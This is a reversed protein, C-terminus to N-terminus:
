AAPIETKCVTAAGPGYGAFVAPLYIKVTRGGWTFGSLKANYAVRMRESRGEGFSRFKRRVPEHRAAERRNRVM